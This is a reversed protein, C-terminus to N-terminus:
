AFHTSTISPVTAMSKSAVLGSSMIRARRNNSYGCLKPSTRTTEYFLRATNRYLLAAEAIGPYDWRLAIALSIEVSASGVVGRNSDVLYM